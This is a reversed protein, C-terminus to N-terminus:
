KSKLVKFSQIEKQNDLIKIFYTANPLNGLSIVTQNSSLKQIMILKGFMDHLAYSMNQIQANQVSLTVFDTTPNPFVMLQAQQGVINSIQVAAVKSYKFQGDIDTQKLRYYSKGTYPSEDTAQYNLISSSNGAGNVKAVNEFQVADKSREVTFFANNIEAATSWKIDVKNQSNAQAMFSVLTIPLSTGSSYSQQLGDSTYGGSGTSGGFDMQGISFSASGGSGTAVGGATLSGSQGFLSTTVQLLISLSALSSYIKKM